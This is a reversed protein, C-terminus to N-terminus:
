QFQNLRHLSEPAGPPVGVDSRSAGIHGLAGATNEAFDVFIGGIVFLVEKEIAGLM